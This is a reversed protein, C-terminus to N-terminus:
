ENEGESAPGGYEGTLGYAARLLDTETVLGLPAGKEDVVPICGIKHRIMLRAAESVATDPPISVVSKAMVEQVEVARMFTRRQSAEFELAKSLSAALLDRQSVIGVLREDDVVPMHRIRGLQMIDEAFDLRDSSKLSIFETRMVESVPKGADTM